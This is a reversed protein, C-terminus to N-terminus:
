SWKHTGRGESRRMRLHGDSGTPVGEYGLTLQGFKVGGAWGGGAWGGGAGGAGGAM